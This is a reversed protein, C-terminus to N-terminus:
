KGTFNTTREMIKTWSQLEPGIKEFFSNFHEAMKKEAIFKKM